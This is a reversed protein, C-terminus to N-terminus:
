LLGRGSRLRLLYMSASPEVTNQADLDSLAPDFIYAVFHSGVRDNARFRVFGGRLEEFVMRVEDDEWAFGHLNHGDEGYRTGLRRCRSWRRCAPPSAM